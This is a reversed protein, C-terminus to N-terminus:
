SNSEANEHVIQQSNQMQLTLETTSSNVHTGNKIRIQLKNIQKNGEQKLESRYMDDASVHRISMSSIFVLKQFDNQKLFQIARPSFSTQHSNPRRTQQRCISLSHLQEDGFRISNRRYTEM